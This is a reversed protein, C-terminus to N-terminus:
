IKIERHNAEYLDIMLVLSVISGGLRVVTVGAILVPERVAKLVSRALQVSTRLLELAIIATISGLM